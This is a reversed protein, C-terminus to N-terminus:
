LDKSVFYFIQPIFLFNSTQYFSEIIFFFEAKDELYDKFKINKEILYSRKFIKTGIFKNIQQNVLLQLKTLDNINLRLNTKLNSFPADLKANFQKSSTDKNENKSFFGVSHVIDAKIKENVVYLMSITNVAIFDTGSLFLLYEGQAIEIGKNWASYIGIKHNMKIFSVNKRSKILKQYIDGINDDLSNDILIIEYFEYDQSFISMLSVEIDDLKSEVVFIISFLPKVYITPQKKFDVPIEIWNDSSCM